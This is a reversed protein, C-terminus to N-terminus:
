KIFIEKIIALIASLHEIRSEKHGGEGAPAAVASSIRWNSV